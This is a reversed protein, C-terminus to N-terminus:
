ARGAPANSEEEDAERELEEMEADSYGYHHGIEHILVHRVVTYLDEGSEIWYDLIPRRFLFIRDLDAPTEGTSKHGLPVGQYLGLLDFPTELDMADCIEEDPFDEILIALGGLPRLLKEPVSGLADEALAGLQEGTPPLIDPRAAQACM